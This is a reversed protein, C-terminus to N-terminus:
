LSLVSTHYRLLHRASETHAYGLNRHGAGWFSSWIYVVVDNYGLEYAGPKKPIMDVTEDKFPRWKERLPM